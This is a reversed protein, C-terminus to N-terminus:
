WVKHVVIGGQRLINIGETSVEVITSPPVVPLVGGDIYADPQEASDGYTAVIQAPDYVDPRGSRNASTAVIPRGLKRALVAAVPHSSVRVAHTGRNECLPALPSTPMKSAVITLPGPWYHVALRKTYPYLNIYTTADAFSPLLVSLGKVQPRDKIIFIRAVATASTADCGMGYSTETPYVVIGGRALIAVAEDIDDPTLRLM